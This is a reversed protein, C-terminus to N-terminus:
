DQRYVWVSAPPLNLWVRPSVEARFGGAKKPMPSAPAYTFQIFPADAQMLGFAERLLSLRQAEPRTYLPLSSVVAAAKQELYGHLTRELAYADGRIVLAKPYRKHLLTCFDPNFEVLVLREEAIGHEILADTVPGTGPGLEIVPGKSDEDVYSAMMRALAKGSPSVAGTKLPNDLWSRIFRADDDIGTERVFRNVVWKGSRKVDRLDHRLQKLPHFPLM